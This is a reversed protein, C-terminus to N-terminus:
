HQKIELGQQLQGTFVCSSHTGQQPPQLTPFGRDHGAWVPWTGRAEVSTRRDPEVMEFCGAYLSLGHRLLLNSTCIM